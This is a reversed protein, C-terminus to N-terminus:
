LMPRGGTVPLVAGTIYTAADSPLFRSCGASPRRRAITLTPRPAKPAPPQGSPNPEDGTRQDEPLDDPQPHQPSETPMLRAAVRIAAAFAAEIHERHELVM